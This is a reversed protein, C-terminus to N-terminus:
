CPLNVDRDSRRDNATPFSVEDYDTMGSEEEDEDVEISQFVNWTLGGRQTTSTPANNFPNFAPFPNNNQSFPNKAEPLNFSAPLPQPKGKEEEEEEKEEEEEEEEEDDSEEDEEFYMAREEDDVASIDPLKETMGPEGEEQRQEQQEQSM